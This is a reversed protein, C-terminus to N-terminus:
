VFMWFIALWGTLCLAVIVLASDSRSLRRDTRAPIARTLM